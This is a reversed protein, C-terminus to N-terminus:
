AVEASRPFAVVNSIVEADDARFVIEPEAHVSQLRHDEPQIIYKLGRNSEQRVVVTGTVEVVVREGIAFEFPTSTKPM